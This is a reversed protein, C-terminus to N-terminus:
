YGTKASVRPRYASTARVTTPRGARAYGLVAAAIAHTMVRDDNGGEEARPKGDGPDVFRSMEVIAEADRIGLSGDSAGAQLAAIAVHRTHQTQMYGHAHEVKGTRQDFREQQYIRPYRRELLTAVVGEGHNNREPALLAPGKRGQWLWGARVLFRAFDRPEPRGHYAAVQAWSDVDYVAAASYDSSAHGGSSDAAILYDRQPDAWEWVQWGGAVSPDAMVGAATKRLDYRGIPPRCSHELLDDLADKAFICLGSARFAEAPTLPLEQAGLGPEDADLKARERLVSEMTRGPRALANAFYRVYGNGIAPDTGDEVAAMFTDYHGDYGDATSVEVMRGGDAVTPRIAGMRQAAAPGGIKRKWRAREDAIVTRFTRSRGSEGSAPYAVVSSASNHHRIGFTDAKDTAVPFAGHLWDPGTEYLRKARWVFKNAEDQDLTFVATEGVPYAICEWLAFLALGWTWGLQRAKLGVVRPHRRVIQLLRRQSDFLVLPELGRITEIELYPALALPSAIVARM